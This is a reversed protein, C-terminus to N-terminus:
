LWGCDGDPPDTTMAYVQDQIALWLGYRDGQYQLYTQVSTRGALDNAADPIEECTRYGGDLGKEVLRQEPDSLDRFDIVTPDEDAAPTEDPEGVAITIGDPMGSLVSCGALASLTALGGSARALLDRRSPM